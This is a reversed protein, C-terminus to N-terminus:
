IDQEHQEEQKEESEWESEDVLSEDSKSYVLPRSIDVEVTVLELTNVEVTHMVARRKVKSAAAQSARLCARRKRSLCGM